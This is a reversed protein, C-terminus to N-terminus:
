HIVEDGTSPRSPLALWTSATAPLTTLFPATEGRGRAHSRVYIGFVAFHEGALKALSPDGLCSWRRTLQDLGNAYNWAFAVIADFVGRVRDPDTSDPTPPWEYRGWRNAYTATSEVHGHAHRSLLRYLGQVVPEAAPEATAVAVRLDRPSPQKGRVWADAVDSSHHAATSLMQGEFSRRLEVYAGIFDGAAMNRHAARLGDLGTCAGVVAAIPPADSGGNRISRWLDELVLTYTEFETQLLQLEDGLVATVFM